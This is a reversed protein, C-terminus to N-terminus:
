RMLSQLESTHEESRSAFKNTGLIAVPATEPLLVFLAPVQILGGGGVVSDIFGALFSFGCLALLTPLPESVDPWCASNTSVNRRFDAPLSNTLPACGSAM